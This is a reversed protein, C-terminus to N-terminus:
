GPGQVWGCLWAVAAVLAGDAALWPATWPGFWVVLALGVGAAPNWPDISSRGFTLPQCLHFLGLGVLFAGLPRLVVRGAPPAPAEAPAPAGAPSPTPAPHDSM